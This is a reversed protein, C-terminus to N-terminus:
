TEVLKALDLLTQGVAQEHAKASQGDDPIGHHSYRMRTADGDLALEIEILEDVPNAGDDNYGVSADWHVTHVLRRPPEIAAYIGRFQWKEIKGGVEMDTVVRFAGGVELDREVEVNSASAGWIWAAVDEPEVLARWVREIPARMVREITYSVFGQM